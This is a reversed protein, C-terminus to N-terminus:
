GWFVTLRIGGSLESKQNLRESIEFYTQVAQEIKKEPFIAKVLFSDKYIIEGENESIKYLVMKKIKAADNIQTKM